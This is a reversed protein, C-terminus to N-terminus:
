TVDVWPIGKRGPDNASHTRPHSYNVGSRRSEGLVRRLIVLVANDRKGFNLKRIEKSALIVAPGVVRRM